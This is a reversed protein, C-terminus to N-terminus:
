TSASGALAQARSGFLTFVDGLGVLELVRHVTRPAVLRLRIDAATCQHHVQILTTIGSSCFFDVHTLDVVLVAPAPRLAARLAIDLMSATSSDVEGRADVVVLEPSPRTTTVKLLQTDGANGRHSPSNM